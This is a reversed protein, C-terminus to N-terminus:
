FRISLKFNLSRGTLYNPVAFQRQEGSLNNITSLWHYSITNKIDLLNFVEIGLIIDDLHQLPSAPNTKVILDKLNRTFGLDIRKYSPMRFYNDYSEEYPSYIPMGSSYHLKIHAKFAPNSPFYDQFFLDASFRIDGPAPYSGYSDNIIDHTAKMFSLSLWSEADKVFEGNLRADLGLINGKASNQASYIVRVNDFRYPILKDLNKYYAETTLRFSTQGIQFYWSSGLVLHMSKQSIIDYNISGDSRKMERYFPPQYYIGTSLYVSTNNNIAEFSFRPSIILEKNLTWYSARAGITIIYRTLALNFTYNDSFFIEFRNSSIANEANISSYLQLGLDSYPISYGASDIMKWENINDDVIEHNIKLGWNIINNNHSWRSSSGVSYVQAHLLNRAHDLWSGIGINMISDGINESGIDKDLLNLSYRARIDFSETERTSYYHVIFKNKLGRNNNWDWILAGNFSIYRDNEFGNYDVNLQYAEQYTGFSSRQSIPTFEYNNTGCTLLLGLSSNQSAKIRILSQIDNFYPNYNARTDLSRLLFRNTMYRAGTLISIKSNKSKGEFHVSSTLLSLNVSGKIEEPEKYTIDLVSSLKDGYTANYGGPSFYISGTLDPNIISLGEKRGSKILQPKYMEIGNLYVLNEDYSGGRVTYQGSLENHSNVGPMTKLLSEISNGGTPILAIDRLPLRTLTPSETIGGDRIFVENISTISENLLFTLALKDSDATFFYNLTDYGVSSIRLTHVANDRPFILVFCGNKNSFTGRESNVVIVNALYLNNGASDSICGELRITNEQSIGKYASFFLLTLLIFTGKYKM